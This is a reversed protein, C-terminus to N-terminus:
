RASVLRNAVQYSEQLIRGADAHQDAVVTLVGSAGLSLLLISGKDSKILLEKAEGLRLDMSEKRAAALSIASSAGIRVKEAFSVVTHEALRGENSTIFVVIIGPDLNKLDELMAQANGGFTNAGHSFRQQDAAPAFRETAPAFPRETRSVARASRENGSFRSGPRERPEEEAQENTNTRSFSYVRRSDAGPAVRGPRATPQETRSVPRENNLFFGRPREQPEGSRRDENEVDDDDGRFFRFFSFLKM